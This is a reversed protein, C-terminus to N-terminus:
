RFLAAAKSGINRKRSTLPVLKGGDASTIEKVMRSLYRPELCTWVFFPKLLRVEELSFDLLNAKGAFSDGLRQRDVIGFEARSTRLIVQGNPYMVPLVRSDILKRSTSIPTNSSLFSTLAWLTEKIEAVPAQRNGKEILEDLMMDLSLESVGLVNVFFDKLDEYQDNM